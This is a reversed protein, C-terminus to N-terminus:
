PTKDRHVEEVKFGGQDLEGLTGQRVALVTVGLTTDVAPDHGSAPATYEVVAEQGLALAEDNGDGGGGGCGVALAALVASM